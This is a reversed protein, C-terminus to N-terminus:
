LTGRVSSTPRGVLNWNMAPGANFGMAPEIGTLRRHRQGLMLRDRTQQISQAFVYCEGLATEIDIWLRRRQGTMSVANPSQVTKKRTISTVSKLGATSVGSSAICQGLASTISATQSAPGVNNWGFVKLSKDM